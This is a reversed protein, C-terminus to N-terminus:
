FFYISLCLKRLTEEFYIKQKTKSQLNASFEDKNPTPHQNLAPNHCEGAIPKCAELDRNTKPTTDSIESETVVRPPPQCGKKM